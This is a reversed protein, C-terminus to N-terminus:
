AKRRRRPAKYLKGNVVCRYEVIPVPQWFCHGTQADEYGVGFGLAWDKKVKAQHRYDITDTRGLWGFSASLKVEGTANGEVIYALRHTHGTVNSHQYTDLNRYVAYRGYHGVDHTYHMSGRKIHDRYPVWEWGTEELKLLTPMDFMGALAPAERALYRPLRDEHNGECVIRTTAGLEALEALLGRAVEVEEPFTAADRHRKVHVSLPYADLIDGIVIITEPKLDRAVDMMLDWADQDHLPAHVDPV